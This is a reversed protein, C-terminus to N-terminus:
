NRMGEVPRNTALIMRASRADAVFLHQGTRQRYERNVSALDDARFAAWVREERRLFDILAAQSELEVIEGTAYYAAARGGVRFEGLPEGERALGNYSDYVERPSFHSSLDPQFGFSVYAAVGLAAALAPVLRYSGLAGFLWLLARASVVVLAIAPVLAMSWAGIRLGLTTVGLQSTLTDAMVLC